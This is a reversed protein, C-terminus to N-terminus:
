LDPSPTHPLSLVLFRYTESRPGPVGLSCSSHTARGRPNRAEKEPAGLGHGRGRPSPKTFMLGKRGSRRVPKQINGSQSTHVKCVCNHRTLSGKPKKDGGTRRSWDTPKPSMSPLGSGRSLSRDATARQFQSVPLKSHREKRQNGSLEPSNEQKGEKVTTAVTLIKSHRIESQVSCDRTPDRVPSRATINSSKRASTRRM